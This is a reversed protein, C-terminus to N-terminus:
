CRSGWRMPGAGTDHKGHLDCHDLVVDDPFVCGCGDASQLWLYGGRRGGACAKHHQGLHEADAEAHRRVAHSFGDVADRRLEQVGHSGFVTHPCASRNRGADSSVVLCSCPITQVKVIRRSVLMVVVLDVREGEGTFVGVVVPAIREEGDIDFSQARREEDAVVQPEGILEPLQCRRRVAEHDGGVPGFDTAVVPLLEEDASRHLVLRVQDADVPDAGAISNAVAAVRADDVGKSFHQSGTCSGFGQKDGLHIGFRNAVNAPPETEHLITASM